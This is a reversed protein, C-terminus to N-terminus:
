GWAAAGRAAVDSAVLVGEKQDRFETSVRSRYSQSKRSHLPANAIGMATFLESLFQAQNATPCFVVVKGRGQATNLERRVVAAALGPLSDM